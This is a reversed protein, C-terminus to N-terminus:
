ARPLTLTFTAGQGLESRATLTGGHLRALSSAIFLGLGHGSATAGSARHFRTFLRPLEAAPIGPGHDTVHVHAAGPAADVRVDVRPGGHRVANSVLNDLVQGLREPDVRVLVPERSPALSLELTPHAARWDDARQDLWAALDLRRRELEVRGEQLQGADLAAQVFAQMRALQRLVVEVPARESADAQALRKLQLEAALQASSLPTKLEHAVWQLLEEAPTAQPPEAVASASAARAGPPASALGAEIVAEFDELSIPKPLYRWAEDVGRPRVASMVIVPVDSLRPDERLARLLEMGSRRPMMHDTIILDPARARAQLLADEGDGARLVEHGLAAVVESLVDLLAEEDDAILVTRTM